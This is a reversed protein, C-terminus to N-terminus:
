YLSVQPLAAPVVKSLAVTWIIGAAGVTLRVALGVLTVCPLEEVNVHLAALLGEDHVALPSQLPVFAPLPDCLV